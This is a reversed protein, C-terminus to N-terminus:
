LVAFLNLILEILAELEDDLATLLRTESAFVCVGFHAVLEVVVGTKDLLHYGLVEIRPAATRRWSWAVEFSKDCGVGGYKGVRDTRYCGCTECVVLTVMVFDIHYDACGAEIGGPKWTKGKFGV